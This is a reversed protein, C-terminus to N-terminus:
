ARRHLDRRSRSVRQRGTAAPRRRRPGRTHPAGHVVGDQLQSRPHAKTADRLDRSPQRLIRLDHDGVERPVAQFGQTGLSVKHLLAQQLGQVYADDSIDPGAEDLRAELRLASLGPRRAVDSVRAVEVGEGRHLVDEGDRPRPVRHAEVPWPRGQRGEGVRHRSRPRPGAVQGAIRPSQAGDAVPPRM